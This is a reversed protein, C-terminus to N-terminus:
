KSNEKNNNKEKKNNDENNDEKKEEEGKEEKKEKNEKLEETGKVEEKKEEKKEAREFKLDGEGSILILGGRAGPIGGKIYLINNERDVKVIELNAITVREGGTRGGMKTGKFVHAPGTAGISGPMRLQDKTGHTKPAGRFGHRKVVGQFGKGKSVGTAKVVDGETFTDVKIIDGREIGEIKNCRFERLFRFNGLGKLHGRQPNKINKEKKEGFGVQIASYGDKDKTKIQTVVCPGAKIATVAVVEDDKRWIQTMNLKQGLIFKM